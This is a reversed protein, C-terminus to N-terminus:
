QLPFWVAKGLHDSALFAQLGLRGLELPISRQRTCKMRLAREANVKNACAHASIPSPPM